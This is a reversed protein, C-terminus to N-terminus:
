KEGTHGFGGEGRDTEELSDVYMLKYQVYPVVILQAVRTGYSIYKPAGGTNELMLIIEGRYDSDIIGITNALKIGTKGLSSRPVVLGMHGVPIELSLGTYAKKMVGPPIVMDASIKLDQGASFETGLHPKLEKDKITAKIVESM